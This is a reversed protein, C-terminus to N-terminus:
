VEAEKKIEEVQEASIEYKNFFADIKGGEKVFKVIGSWDKTGKKLVLLGPRPTKDSTADADMGDDLALLGQLAYKRAYSMAAGSLQPATMGKASEEQMVVATSSYEVEGNTIIAKSSIYGAQAIWKVKDKFVIWFGVEHLIPKLVDLIDELTRYKFKGQLHTHQKPVKIEKQFDALTKM